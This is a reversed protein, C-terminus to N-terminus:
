SRETWHVYFQDGSTIITPLNTLRQGDEASWTWSGPPTLVGDITGFGGLFSITYSVVDILGAAAALDFVALGALVGSARAQNTLAVVCIGRVLNPGPAPAAIVAGTADTWFSVGTPEGDETIIWQTVNAGNFCWELPESDLTPGSCAILDAIVGLYPTGDLNYATATPVGTASYSVVVIVRDGTIPDCLILTDLEGSPDCLRVLQVTNPDPVTLTAGAVLVPNGDCDVGTVPVAPVADCCPVPDARVPLGIPANPACPPACDTNLQGPVPPGALTQFQCQSSANVITVGDAAYQVAVFFYITNPLLGTLVAQYPQFAINAGPILPTANPYPGNFTPGWIFSVFGNLPVNIGTGLIAASDVTTFTAGNCDVPM